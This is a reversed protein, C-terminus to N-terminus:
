FTYLSLWVSAGRYRISNPILKGILNIVPAPFRMRFLYKIINGYVVFVLLCFIEYATNPHKNAM